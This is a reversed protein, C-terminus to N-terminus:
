SDIRGTTGGYSIRQSLPEVNSPIEGHPGQHHTLTLLTTRFTHILQEEESILAALGLIIGDRAWIRRYNANQTPSALFGDDTTCRYLLGIADQYINSAMKKNM